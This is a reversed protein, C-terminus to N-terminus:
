STLIKYFAEKKSPDVNMQNLKKNKIIYSNKINIRHLFDINHSIVIIAGRFMNISKVLVNVTEVDLNNTPEDLILLDIPFATVIAMALRVTEGGSLDKGLKKLENETKFQLKGLQEKAKSLTLEPHSATLNQILTLDPNILSYNQDIYVWSMNEGLYIDGKLEINQNHVYKTNPDKRKLLGRVLSSKGTGNDGSISIRNGYTVKLNIGSILQKDNTEVSADKLEFITRNENSSTNLMHIFALKRQEIDTDELQSEADEVLRELQISKGHQLSSAAEKGMNFARKDISGKIFARKAENAKKAKKEIEDQQLDKAKELKEKALEYQKRIGRLHLAKQEKYFTYNGGYTTIKQKELEWIKTVVQDLFFVDHSVIIYSYKNKSSENIFSILANISKVDLHNTPEDLILVDPDHKLAIALNLKMLEGGSLTKTETEADIVLSFTKEVESIIDWWEEYFESIYEYIKLDKQHITLNIQPVYYPKCDITHTGEELAIQGTLIKLLTSKGSGNAGVIATKDGAQVTLKVDEFLYDQGQYKFSASNLQILTKGPNM